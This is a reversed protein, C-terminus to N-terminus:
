PSAGARLPHPVAPDDATVAGCESCRWRGPIEPAPPDYSTGYGCAPDQLQDCFTCPAAQGDEGCGPCRQGGAPMTM